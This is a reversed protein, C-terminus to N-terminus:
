QNETCNRENTKSKQASILLVKQHLAGEASL